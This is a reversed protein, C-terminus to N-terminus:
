QSSPSAQVAPPVSIVAPPPDEITTQDKHTLACMLMEIIANSKYKPTVGLYESWILLIAAIVTPIYQKLEDM